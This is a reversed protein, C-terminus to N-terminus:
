FRGKKGFIPLSKSAMFKSELSILSVITQGLSMKLSLSAASIDLFVKTDHLSTFTKRIQHPNYTAQAAEELTLHHRLLREAFLIRFPSHRRHMIELHTLNHRM